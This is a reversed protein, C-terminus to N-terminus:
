AIKSFIVKTFCFLVFDCSQIKKLAEKHEEFSNEDPATMIGRFWYLVQLKLSLPRVIQIGM